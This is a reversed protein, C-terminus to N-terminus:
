PEVSREHELVDAMRVDADQSRRRGTLHRGLQLAPREVVYFSVAAAVLSVALALAAFGVRGLSTVLGWDTLQTLVVVHLLYLGYSVLGIWLLPRSALVRRVVGRGADGFAAPLLLGVAVAGQLVHVLLYRVAYDGTFHADVRVLLWFGIGAALWPIWPARDVLRVLRPMTDRGALAVSAVALGMGLAFHDLFGPLVYLAPNLSSTDFATAATPPDHAAAIGTWAVGVVALVALGALESRVISRGDRARVRRMAWAWLPLMAYFTVEVCLSWAASIGGVVTDSDYVQLFGFYAPIGTLSFVKRAVPSEGSAGILVVTVVLAVWYAPVIRLARRIAFRGAGPKDRAEWRAKVFPRYLLFGSILFFVAVGSKLNLLYPAITSDPGLSVLFPLHVTFVSLAAIARLSDFLPFRPNGAAM